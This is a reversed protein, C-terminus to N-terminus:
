TKEIQKPVHILWSGESSRSGHPQSLEGGDSARGGVNPRKGCWSFRQKIKEKFYLSLFDVQINMPFPLHSLQLELGKVVQHSSGVWQFFGSAPFCQLCFSFFSTTLYCWCSLPCSDSCVRPSLSPGLLLRAHQLGHPRLSDSVVSCRFIKRKERHVCLIIVEHAELSASASEKLLLCTIFLCLVSPSKLSNSLWYIDLAEWMWGMCTLIETKFGKSLRKCFVPLVRSCKSELECFEKLHFFPFILSLNPYRSQKLYCYQLFELPFVCM